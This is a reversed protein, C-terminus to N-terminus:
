SLNTLLLNKKFLNKKYQSLKQNNKELLQKNANRSNSSIEQM